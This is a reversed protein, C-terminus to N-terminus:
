SLSWTANHLPRYADVQSQSNTNAALCETIVALASNGQRVSFAIQRMEAPLRNVREMAFVKLPVGDNSVVFAALEQATRHLGEEVALAYERAAKAISEDLWPLIDDLEGNLFLALLDKEQLQTM